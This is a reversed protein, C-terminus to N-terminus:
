DGAGRPLDATVQPFPGAVAEVGPRRAARGLLADSVKGSDFTAVVHPGHLKGFAHDFPASAADVLGLAVVISGTSVLTVLWIVLTQLRRRRVAARAAKWVARM